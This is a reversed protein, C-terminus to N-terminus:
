SSSKGSSSSSKPLNSSDRTKSSHSNPLITHYVSEDLLLLLNVLVELLLLGDLFVEFFIFSDLFVELLTLGCTLISRLSFLAGVARAAPVALWAMVWEAGALTLGRRSWSVDGGPPRM